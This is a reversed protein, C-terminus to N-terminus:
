QKTAERYRQEVVKWDIIKWIETLYKVRLNQYDLYYAHEWVDITLLPVISNWEPMEQNGLEFMRLTKSVTDYGLWGWGSGQISATRKNFEAIFNEYSGWKQTIALTLPSNSEPLQGGGQKSPALNEWYLAHNVHGGLNFRLGSQLLAVKHVDNNASAEKIQNYIDNLNNIYTQHHKGYHYELLNKSLIPELDNLGFKLKPITAPITSRLSFFRRLPFQLNKM